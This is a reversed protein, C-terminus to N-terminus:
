LKAEGTKYFYAEAARRIILGKLVKGGSKNWMGFVADVNEGRMLRPIIYELSGIGCNYSLSVLASFENDDAKFNQKYCSNKVQNGYKEVNELLKSTAQEETKVTSLSYALSKNEFGKLMKGNYRIVNGYGETWYGAPCMKPQLGIVSLDGDHLSEFHKILDIIKENLKM